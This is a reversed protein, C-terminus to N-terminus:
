IKTAPTWWAPELHHLQGWLLVLLAVFKVIILHCDWLVPQQGRMWFWQIHKFFVQISPKLCGISFITVKQFVTSNRCDLGSVRKGGGGKEKRYVLNANLFSVIVNKQTANSSEFYQAPDQINVSSLLFINGGNVHHGSAPSNISMDTLQFGLDPNM